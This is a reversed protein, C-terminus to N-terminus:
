NGVKAQGPQAPKDVEVTAPASTKVTVGISSAAKAGKYTMENFTFAVAWHWAGSAIGTLTVGTVSIM